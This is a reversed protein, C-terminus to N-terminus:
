WVSRALRRHGHGCHPRRAHRRRRPVVKRCPAAPHGLLQLVAHRRRGDDAPARAAGLHGVRLAPRRPDAGQGAAVRRPVTCTSRRMAAPGIMVARFTAANVVFTWRSAPSLILLGALAPGVIRSSNVIVSNLAVANALDDRGVMEISSPESADPQRRRQHPWLRSGPGLGDLRARRRHARARGAGRVPRPLRSQTRHAARASTWATPSSVASPAWSSCRRSSCRWPSAWTSPAAPSSSCWGARPSRSCGRARVPLHDARHVLSPLQARAALQFHPRRRLAGTGAPRLDGRAVRM